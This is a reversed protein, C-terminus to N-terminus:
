RPLGGRPIWWSFECDVKFSVPDMAGTRCIPFHLGSSVPPMNLAVGWPAVMFKLGEAGPM